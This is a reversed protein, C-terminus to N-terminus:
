VSIDLNTGMTASALVQLIQAQAEATQKLMQVAVQQQASIAQMAVAAVEMLVGVQYRKM